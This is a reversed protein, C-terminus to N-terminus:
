VCCTSRRTVDQLVAVFARGGTGPNDIENLLLEIELIAGDKRQGQVERRYGIAKRVGTKLYSCWWCWWEGTDSCQVPQRARYGMDRESREMFSAHKEGTAQPMLITVNAGALEEQEWTRWWWL